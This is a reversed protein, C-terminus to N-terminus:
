NKLINDDLPLFFIKFCDYIPNIVKILAQSLKPLFYGKTSKLWLSNEWFQRDHKVSSIDRSNEWFQRFYKISTIGEDKCWTYSLLVYKEVWQPRITM